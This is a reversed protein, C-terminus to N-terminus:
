CKHQCSHHHSRHGNAAAIIAASRGCVSACRGIRRRRLGSIALLRCFLRRCVSRVYADTGAHVLEVIREHGTNTVGHGSACCLQACGDIDHVGLVLLRGLVFLNIGEDRLADISQDNVRNIQGSSARDDGLRLVCAQRDNELVTLRGLFVHIGIVLSPINATLCLLGTRHGALDDSVVEGRIRICILVAVAGDLVDHELALRAM